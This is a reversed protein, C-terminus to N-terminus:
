VCENMVCVEVQVCDRQPHGPVCVSKFYLNALFEVVILDADVFVTSIPM